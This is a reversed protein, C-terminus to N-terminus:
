PTSQKSAVDKAADAKVTTTKLVARSVTYGLTTLVAGAMAIIKAIPSEIPFIESVILANIIVAAVTLWLESTYIGKNM